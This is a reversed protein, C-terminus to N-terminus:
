THVGKLNRKEYEMSLVVAIVCLVNEKVVVGSKSNSGNKTSNESNYTKIVNDLVKSRWKQVSDIEKDQMMM